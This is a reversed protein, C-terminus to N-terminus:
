VAGAAQEVRPLPTDANGASREDCWNRWIERFRAEIDRGFGSEDRLKSAAFMPRIAQRLKRLGAKDRALSVARSVYDDDGAAILADLGIRHLISATVRSVHSEGLKTIVPVGMWLAECTTTTGNYPFPDLAIDIGNYVALHSDVGPLAEMVHIRSPDIGAEEFLGIHRARVVPDAMSRHKIVIHSEPVEALICAWLGIVHANLKHVANFSGFIVPSCDDQRTPAVEPCNEPPRYCHFGNPLRVPTEVSQAESGEPETIADTFRYGIAPNGTTNPYGLWSVQVPAPRRAFLEM